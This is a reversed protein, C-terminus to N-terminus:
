RTRSATPASRTSRGTPTSGTRVLLDADPQEVFIRVDLYASNLRTYWAEGISAPSDADGYMEWGLVQRMYTSEAGRQNLNIEDVRGYAPDFRFHYGDNFEFKRGQTTNGGRRRVFVNDYFEDRFYVSGRTGAETGSAAVNQVFYEFVPLTTSVGNAQVVTGLYEPSNTPDLFLPYRSQDSGADPRPSTGACWKIPDRRRAPDGGYVGDGPFCRIGRRQRADDAASGFRVDRPLSAHSDFCGFGPVRGHHTKLTPRGLRTRRVRLNASWLSAPLSTPAVPRAQPMYALVENADIVKTATLRPVSLLDPSADSVNLVHIALLNTGAVLYNLYPSLDFTDPTLSDSDEREGSANTQYNPLTPAFASVVRQGNLYAVFGDDYQLEMLLSALESPDAVNFEVRQYVSSKTANWAAALDVDILENYNISRSSLLEIEGMQISNPQNNGTAGYETLFDFKYYEYAVNNGFEYLRTQFRTTFDQAVRSDVITFNVGDNSGSLTWTYPDRNSADNASTITYGNVAERNGGAFRFQYFQEEPIFSLWKTGTNNDLAQPPDENPRAAPGGATITGTLTGDEEPDTLDNGIPGAAARDWQSTIPRM